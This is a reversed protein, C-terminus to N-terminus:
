NWLYDFFDAAPCSFSADWTRGAARDQECKTMNTKPIGVAEGVTEVAGQLVGNAMDMAATSALAGVNYGIATFSENDVVKKYAVYALAVVAVGAAIKISTGIVM